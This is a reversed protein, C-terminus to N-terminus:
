RSRNEEIGIAGAFSGEKISPHTIRWLLFGADPANLEALTEGFLNSITGLRQGKTVSDGPEVESHFDGGAPCYVWLYDDCHVRANRIETAPTSIIGLTRAVNLVGEVFFSITDETLLGNAGAEPLLAIRDHTAFASPSYTGAKEMFRRPLALVFEANFCRAMQRGRANLQPDGTDQYMVFKSVNERLDGGHMDILCDAGISWENMIADCLAESFTGDKKGPFTHEINKGDLPCVYQPYQFLGPQNILPIISVSGEMVEPDFLRQLRVAAEIASVENPHVGACICLRPGAKKGRIECIEWKYGALRPSDFSLHGRFIGPKGYECSNSLAIVEM